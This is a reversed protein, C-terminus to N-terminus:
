DGPSPGVLASQELCRIRHTQLSAGRLSVQISVMADVPTGWPRNPSWTRGDKEIPAEVKSRYSAAM